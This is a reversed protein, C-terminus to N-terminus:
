NKKAISMYKTLKTHAVLVAFQLKMPLSSDAMTTSLHNDMKTYMPLVFPITPEKACSM